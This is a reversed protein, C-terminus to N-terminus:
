RRAAAHARGARPARRRRCAAGRGVRCAGAPAAHGGFRVGRRLDGREGSLRRAAAGRPDLDDEACRSLVAATRVEVAPGGPDSRRVQDRTMAGGATREIAPESEPPPAPIWASRFAKARQPTCPIVAIVANVACLVIPTVPM